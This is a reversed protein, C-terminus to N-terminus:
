AEVKMGIFYEELKPLNLVKIDTLREIEGLVDDVRELAETALVFWMNFDHDREYNHAVETFRNLIAAVREFDPAPVAMACLTLGGGIRAANFM